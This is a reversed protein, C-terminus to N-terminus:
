RACGIAGGGKRGQRRRKGWPLKPLARRLETKGCVLAEATPPVPNKLKRAAAAANWNRATNIVVAIAVALLVFLVIIAIPHSKRIPQEAPM